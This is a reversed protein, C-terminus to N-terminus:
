IVRSWRRGPRTRRWSNPPPSLISCAKALAVNGIVITSGRANKRSPISFFEAPPPDGGAADVTEADEGEEAVVTTMTTAADAGVVTMAGTITEEEVTVGEKTIMGVAVVALEETTEAMWGETTVIEVVAEEAM